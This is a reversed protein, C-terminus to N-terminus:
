ESLYSKVKTIFTSTDLFFNPYAKKVEKVNGVSVLVVSINPNFRTEQEQTKYLSEAMEVQEKTFPTISVTSEKTNLEILHYAAKGKSSTIIKVASKAAAELTITAHIRNDLEKLEEIIEERTNDKYEDLVPTNEEMSFLASILKFYQEDDKSGRGTKISSSTLIGLTEVATGWIHQLSTRIQLEVRLGDLQPCTKSYCRFISHVSRYGDKKPHEIYDNVKELKRYGHSSLVKKHFDYVEEINKLVVRIGAIDQMRDLSMDQYRDLKDIISPFRKLRQGIIEHEYNNNRLKIRIYSNFIALHAAHASRWVSLINLANIAQNIDSWDGTRFYDGAKRIQKKSFPIEFCDM